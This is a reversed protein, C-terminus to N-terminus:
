FERKDIIVDVSTLTMTPPRKELIKENSLEKHFPFEIVPLTLNTYLRLTIFFPNFCRHM